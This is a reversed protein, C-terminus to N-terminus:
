KGEGTRHLLSVVLGRETQEFCKMLGGDRLDIALM